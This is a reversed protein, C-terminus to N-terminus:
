HTGHTEPKLNADPVSLNYQTPFSDQVNSYTEFDIHYLPRARTELMLRGIYESIIGWLFFSVAFMTSTQLSTTAWGPAISSNILRDALVFGIYILNLFSFLIAMASAFRLPRISNSVILGIFRDIEQGFKVRKWEGRRVVPEYPIEEMKFGAQMGFLRVSRNHGRFQLISNLASRSLALFYSSNKFQRQDLAWRLLQYAVRYLLRYFFPKDTLRTRIGVAMGETRQVSELLQPLLSIPDSHPQLTFIYNGIAHELGCTIAVDTGYATSMHLFRTKHIRTRLTEFVQITHDESGADVLIIEYNPYTQELFSQLDDLFGPLIDADNQLPVIVSIMLDKHM